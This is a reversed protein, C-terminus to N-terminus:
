GIFSIRSEIRSVIYFIHDCTMPKEILYISGKSNVIFGKIRLSSCYIFDDISEREM